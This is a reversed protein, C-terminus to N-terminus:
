KIKVQIGRHVTFRVVTKGSDAEASTKRLVRSQAVSAMLNLKLFTDDCNMWSQGALAVYM